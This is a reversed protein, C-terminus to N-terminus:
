SESLALDVHPRRSPTVSVTELNVVVAASVPVPVPLSKDSPVRAPARAKREALSKSKADAPTAYNGWPGSVMCLDFVVCRHSCTTGADKSYYDMPYVSRWQTTGLAVQAVFLM